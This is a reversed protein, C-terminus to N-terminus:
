FRGGPLLQSGFGQQGSKDLKVSAAEFSLKDSREAQSRAAVSFVGSAVPAAVMAVAATLLLCAKRFDMAHAPINSVIQQIRKQLHSGSVGAACLLPSELYLRCVRLIGEAYVEPNTGQRLVEEDCARERENLLRTGLWWVLPYFWFIGV